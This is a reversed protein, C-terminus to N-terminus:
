LLCDGCDNNKEAICIKCVENKDVLKLSKEIFDNAIKTIPKKWVRKIRYLTKVINQKLDPSYM